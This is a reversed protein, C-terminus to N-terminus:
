QSMPKIGFAQNQHPPFKHWMKMAGNAIDRQRRVEVNAGEGGQTLPTIGYFTVRVGLEELPHFLSIM